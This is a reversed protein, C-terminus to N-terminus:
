YIEWFNHQKTSWIRGQKWWYLCRVIGREPYDSIQHVIATIYALFHGVFLFNYAQPYKSQWTLSKRVISTLDFPLINEFYIKSIRTPMWACIHIGIRILVYTYLISTTTLCPRILQTLQLPDLGLKQNRACPRNIAFNWAYPAPVVAQLSSALLRLLRKWLTFNFPSLPSHDGVVRPNGCPYINCGMSSLM